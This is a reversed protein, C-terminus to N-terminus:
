ITLKFPSKPLMEVQFEFTEVNQMSNGQKKGFEIKGKFDLGFPGKAGKSAAFLHLLM